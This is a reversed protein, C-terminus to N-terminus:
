KAIYRATKIAQSRRSGTTPNASHLPPSVGGQSMGLNRSNQATKQEFPTNPESFKIHFDTSTKSNLTQTLGD